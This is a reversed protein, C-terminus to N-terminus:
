LDAAADNQSPAFSKGSTHKRRQELGDVLRGRMDDLALSIRNTIIDRQKPSLGAEREVADALLMLSLRLTKFADGALDIVAKTDWLDGMREMYNLRQNQGYWFEKALMKPLDNAHMTLIKEIMDDPPKILLRAAEKPEYLDYGNRKGKPQLPSLKAKVDTRNMKFLLALESQTM